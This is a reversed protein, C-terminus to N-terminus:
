KPTPVTVVFRAKAGARLSKGHHLSSIPMKTAPYPRLLAAGRRVEQDIPQIAPFQGVLVRAERAGVWGIPDFIWFSPLTSKM